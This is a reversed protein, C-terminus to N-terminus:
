LFLKCDFRILFILKIKCLSCVGLDNLGALGSFITLPLLKGGALELVVFSFIVSSIIVVLVGASFVCVTGVMLLTAIGGSSLVALACEIVADM